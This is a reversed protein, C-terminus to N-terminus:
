HGQQINVKFAALRNWKAEQGLWGWEGESRLKVTEEKPVGKTMMTGKRFGIILTKAGPVM